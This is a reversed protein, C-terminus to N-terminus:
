KKRMGTIVKFIEEADKSGGHKDPHTLKQLTKLNDQTLGIVQVEKSARPPHRQSTKLAGIQIKLRNIEKNQNDICNRMCAVLEELSDVDERSGFVTLNYERFGWRTKITARTQCLRDIWRKIFTMEIVKRLVRLLM